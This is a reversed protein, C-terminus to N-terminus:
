VNWKLDLGATSLPKVKEVTKLILNGPSIVTEGRTCQAWTLCGKLQLALVALHVVEVAM